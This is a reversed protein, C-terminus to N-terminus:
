CKNEDTIILGILNKIEILLIKNYYNAKSRNEASMYEDNCYAGSKLKLVTNDQSCRSCGQYFEKFAKAICCFLM